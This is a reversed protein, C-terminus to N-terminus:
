RILQDACHSVIVNVLMSCRGQSLWYSMRKIWPEGVILMCPVEVNGTNLTFHLGSSMSSHLYSLAYTM